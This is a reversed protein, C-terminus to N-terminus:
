SFVWSHVCSSLSPSQHRPFCNRGLRPTLCGRRPSTRGSSPIHLVCSCFSRPRNSAVNFNYLLALPTTRPSSTSASIVALLSVVAPFLPRLHYGLPDFYFCHFPWCGPCLRLASEVSSLLWLCCCGIYLPLWLVGLLWSLCAALLLHHCTQASSRVNLFRRLTDQLLQDSFLVLGDCSNTSPIMSLRSSSHVLFTM